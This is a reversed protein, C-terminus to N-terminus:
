QRILKSQNSVQKISQQEDEGASGNTGDETSLLVNEKESFPSDYHTVATTTKGSDKGSFSSAKKPRTIQSTSNQRSLQKTWKRSVDSSMKVVLLVCILSHM